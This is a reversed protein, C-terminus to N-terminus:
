LAVDFLAFNTPRCQDDIPARSNCKTYRPPAQAPHPGAWDRMATGFTVAWGDVALTGIVRASYSPGKSQTKLTAILPNLPVRM